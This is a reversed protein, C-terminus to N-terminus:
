LDTLWFQGKHVDFSLLFVNTATITRITIWLGTANDGVAAHQFALAYCASVLADDDDATKDSKALHDNVSQVARLRHFDVAPMLNKEGDRVLSAAGLALLSHM